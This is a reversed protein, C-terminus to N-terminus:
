ACAAVVSHIAAVVSHIAAVVQAAYAPQSLISLHDAGPVIIQRSRTSLRLLDEQLQQHRANVQDASLGAIKGRGSVSSGATVVVLPLEGLSPPVASAPGFYCRHQTFEALMTEHHRPNSTVAIFSSLDQPSLDRAMSGLSLRAMPRSLGLRAALRILRVGLAAQRVFRDVDPFAAYEDVHTADVLVMGAVDQPHLGAYVRAQLGGFSHGVLVYPPTLNLQGLLANLEGALNAPTRPSPSADSWGQGARDYALVRTFASVAPQIHTYQLAFGGLAPELIVTPSGQGSLLAHLRLVGNRPGGIDIMQGPPTPVSM